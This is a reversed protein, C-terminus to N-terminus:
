AKSSFTKTHYAQSVLGQDNWFIPKCWQEQPPPPPGKALRFYSCIPSKWKGKRKFFRNKLTSKLFSNRPALNKWIWINTVFNEPQKEKAIKVDGEMRYVFCKALYTWQFLFFYYQPLPQCLQYIELYYRFTNNQEM